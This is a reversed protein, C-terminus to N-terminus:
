KVVRLTHGKLRDLVQVQRMGTLAEDCRDEMEEWRLASEGDDKDFDGFRKFCADAAQGHAALLDRERNMTAANLADIEFDILYLLLVLAEDSLSEANITVQM